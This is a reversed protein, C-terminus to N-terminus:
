DKRELDDMRSELSGMAKLLFCLTFGVFGITFLIGGGLIMVVEVMGRENM